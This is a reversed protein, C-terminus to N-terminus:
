PPSGKAGALYWSRLGKLSEELRHTIAAMAERKPLKEFDEYRIPSGFVCAIKGWLKPFKSERPWILHAGYIYAPVIPCGAKQVILAVGAKIEHIEGDSYRSGEPYLNVKKGEKLLHHIKKFIAIDGADGAIPHSNLATIFRGFLGKFLSERALFHMEEPWSSAIIPPDFFSIHNSAIIGSGRYFHDSGYIKLRYFLRFFIYTFFITTRYLFKMKKGRFGIQRKTWKEWFGYAKELVQEITLSTSDIVFADEPCKLPAVARTSDRYDREDTEELIKQFDFSRDPFREKLEKLRRKARVKSTAMLYIKLEAEPFVVTGMDRGEFVCRQSAFQRQVDLLAARVFPYASIQSASNAIEQTRLEETVEHEGVFFRENKQSPKFHKLADAIAEKDALDIGERQLFWALSRYLAGSNVHLYGLRTALKKAITSKGTGSPGDITIIM